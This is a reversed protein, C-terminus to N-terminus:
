IIWEEIRDKKILFAKESISAMPLDSKSDSFFAEIKIDYKKRYRNVKEQGYCNKGTYKGTHKDVKSAILNQVKIRKCIEMLLFSPSASIVLDDKDQANLYWRKIKRENKNWFQIVDLDIDDLCSFFQYFEEKFCTKDIAGLKFRIGSFLQRPIYRIVKPHVRICYFYFDLTSDGDYITNDFDYVNM